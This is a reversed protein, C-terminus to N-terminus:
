PVIALALRHFVDAQLASRCVILREDRYDLSAIEALDGSM